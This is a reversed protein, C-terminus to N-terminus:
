VWNQNFTCGPLVIWVFFVLFVLACGLAAFLV